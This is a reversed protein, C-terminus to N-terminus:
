VLVNNWIEVWRRDRVDIVDPPPSRGVWTFVETDPGCPGTKGAPGWWNDDRGLLAIRGAPIGLRAWIAASERDAPVQDDGAFCTVGLRGPPLGLEGTLFEFSWAIADDRGYDGLSWNGLMEFLTLHTDDGVVDIDGTRLCKQVNALRTGAPHPEGLLYPVLPHMGATTFLVSPDNAPVLSAPPITVHGRRAFFALYKARLQSSTLSPPSSSPSQM